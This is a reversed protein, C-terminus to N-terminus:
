QIRRTQHCSDPCSQLAFNLSTHVVKVCLGPPSVQVLVSKGAGSEGTVVNLGPTLTVQQREILAFDQIDLQRIFTAAAHQPASPPLAAAVLESSGPAEAEALCSPAASAATSPAARELTEAKHAHRPVFM